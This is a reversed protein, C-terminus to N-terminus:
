SLGKANLLEKILFSEFERSGDDYGKHHCYEEYLLAAIKEKVKTSIWVEELKKVYVALVAEDKFTGMKYLPYEEVLGVAKLSNIEEEIYDIAANTDEEWGVENEEGWIHLDPYAAALRECFAGPLFTYHYQDERPILKKAAYPAINKDTLAQHWAESPVNYFYCNAEFSKEDKFINIVQQIYGENMTYCIATGVTNYLEWQSNIIRSENIAIEAINYAGISIPEMGEPKVRIGKRYINFKGAILKVGTAVEEQTVTDSLIYENINTVFDQLKDGEEIIILTTGERPWPDVPNLEYGGEDMANCVFERIAYWPVWQPGMRTTLSTTIGDIIIRQFNEGRFSVEETSIDVKRLGSYITFPIAHRLLTAIAYKNGSGFFGIKSSDGEKSSVGLLTLAELQIEGDNRIIM